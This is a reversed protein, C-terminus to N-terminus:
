QEVIGTERRLDGSGHAGEILAPKAQGQPADGDPGRDLRRRVIEVIDGCPLSGHHRESALRVGNAEKDVIGCVGDLGVMLGTTTAASTAFIILIVAAVAFSAAVFFLFVKLSFPLATDQSNM